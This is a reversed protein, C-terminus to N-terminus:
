GFTFGGINAGTPKAKRHLCGPGSYSVSQGSGGVITAEEGHNLCLATTKQLLTGRAYRQSVAPSASALRFIIPRPPAAPRAASTAAGARARPVAVPM